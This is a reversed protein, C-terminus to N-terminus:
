GFISAKAWKFTIAIAALGLMAGGVAIIAATGDTTITSVADDVISTTAEGEAFSPASLSATVLLATLKQKM